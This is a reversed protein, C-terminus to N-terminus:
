RVPYLERVWAAPLTALKGALSEVRHAFILDCLRLRFRDEPTLHEPFTGFPRRFKEYQRDFGNGPYRLHRVTARAVRV